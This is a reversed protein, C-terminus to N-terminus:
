RTRVPTLSWSLHATGYKARGTPSCSTPEVMGCAFLTGFDASWGGSFSYCPVPGRPCDRDYYANATVSGAIDLSSGLRRWGTYPSGTIADDEPQIQEDGSFSATAITFIILAYQCKHLKSDIGLIANAGINGGFHEEGSFGTGSNAFADNVAGDSVAADGMFEAGSDTTQRHSLNLTLFARRDLTITETGGEATDDGTATETYVVSAHGHFSTVGRLSACRSARAAGRADRVGAQPAAALAAAVLAVAAVLIGVTTRTPTM